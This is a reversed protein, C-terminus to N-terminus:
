TSSSVPMRRIGQRSADAKGVREGLFPEDACDDCAAHHGSVPHDGSGTLGRSPEPRPRGATELM